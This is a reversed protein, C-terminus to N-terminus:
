LAHKPSWFMPSCSRITCQMSIRKRRLSRWLIRQWHRTRSGQLVVNSFVKPITSITHPIVWSTSHLMTLLCPKRKETLLGLGSKKPVRGTRRVSAFSWLGNERPELGSAFEQVAALAEVCPHDRLRRSCILVDNKWRTSSWSAFQQVASLKEMFANRGLCGFVLLKTVKMQCYYCPGAVGLMWREIERYKRFFSLRCLICCIEISLKQAVYLKSIAFFGQCESPLVQDHRRLRTPWVYDVFSLLRWIASSLSSFLVISQRCLFSPLLSVIPFGIEIIGKISPKISHLLCLWCNESVIALNQLLMNPNRFCRCVSLSRGAEQPLSHTQTHTLSLSLSVCVCVCVCLSHKCIGDDGTTTLSSCHFRRWWFPEGNLLWM